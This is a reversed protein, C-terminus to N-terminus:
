VWLEIPAQRVLARLIDTRTVIGEVQSTENVVPLCSIQRSVMLDAVERIGTSPSVSIVHRQAIDIIPTNSNATNPSNLPNILNSTHRLLDSDSVIAIVQSNNNIIPIHRFARSQFLQWADKLLAKDSITIVPSSMVQAVVIVAQRPKKNENDKYASAGTGTYPHPRTKKDVKRLRATAQVERTQHQKLLRSLSEEQRIGQDFVYFVM